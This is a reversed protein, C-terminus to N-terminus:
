SSSRATRAPAPTRWPWADRGPQVDPRRRPGRGRVHVRARRARHGRPRRGPDHLRRDRPPLDDRPVDPRVVDHRREDMRARRDGPRRLEQRDQTRARADAHRHVLGQEHRVHRHDDSPGKPDAPPDSLGFGVRPGPRGAPRASARDVSPQRRATRRIRCAPSNVNASTCSSSQTASCRDDRREPSSPSISSSRWCAPGTRATAPARRRRWPASDSGGATSWTSARAATTPRSRSRSSPRRTTPAPEAEVGAGTSAAPGLRPDHAWTGRDRGVHGRLRSRGGTGRLRGDGGERRPGDDRGRGDLVGAGAVVHGHGATFVRFADEPSRRVTVSANIPETM